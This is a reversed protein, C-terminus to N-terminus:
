VRRVNHRMKQLFYGPNFLAACGFNWLFRLYNRQMYHFGAQKYFRQSWDSYAYKMKQWPTLSALYDIFTLEMEGRRRRKLNCKIHRMRMSMARGNASMSTPMKRYRFLVEPIVMLYKGDKYFDSMRTWLDLDECMDQYRPKGSSFGEVARCGAKRIWEVRSINMPPIFLLKESSAQQMFHNRDTPGIFIGGRLKKSDPTMYECYASVMVCDSDGRLISMMRGVATPLMVDDADIFGLFETKVHQEAYRRAAALGGNEPLTVILTNEWNCEAFYGEVISRTSDTSADDIVLLKFDKYSQNWLSELTETIYRQANYACICITLDNGSM